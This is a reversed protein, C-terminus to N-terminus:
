TKKAFYGTKPELHQFLMILKKKGYCNVEVFTSHTFNTFEKTLPVTVGYQVSAGALFPVHVDRAECVFNKPIRIWTNNFREPEPQRRFLNSFCEKACFAMEAYIYGVFGNMNLYLGQTEHDFTPWNIVKCSESNILYKTENLRSEFDVTKEYFIFPSLFLLVLGTLYANFFTRPNFIRHSALVQHM